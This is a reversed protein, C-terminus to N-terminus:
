VPHHLVIYREGTGMTYVFLPYPDLLNEHKIVLYNTSRIVEFGGIDYNLGLNELSFCIFFIISEQLIIHQIEAFLPCSCEDIGYVLVM